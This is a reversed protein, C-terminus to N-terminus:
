LDVDGDTEPHPLRAVDQATISKQYHNGFHQRVYNVVAAVDADDLRVSRTRLAQEASVGFAPMDSRGRLITIAVYEWSVLSPDAALAPYRGAGVAGERKAMHCGQCIHSYIEAAHATGVDVKLATGSDDARVANLAATGPLIVLM